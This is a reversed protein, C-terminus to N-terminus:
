TGENILKMGMKAVHKWHKFYHLAKSLKNATQEPDGCSDIKIINDNIADQVRHYGIAIHKAHNHFQPNWTM